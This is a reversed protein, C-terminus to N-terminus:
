SLKAQEILSHRLYVKMDDDTLIKGKLSVWDDTKGKLYTMETDIRGQFFKGSKEEVEYKKILVIKDAYKVALTIDHSVVVATKRKEKIQSILLEMLMESTGCDLNGTPEDAFLVTFDSAIARTFAVRQRQGGSIETIKKPLINNNPDIIEPYIKEFIQKSNEISKDRDYGQLLQTLIVNDQVSLTPFLNTSQFHSSAGIREVTSTLFPSM